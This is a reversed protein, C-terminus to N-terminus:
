DDKESCVSMVCNEKEKYWRITEDIGREFTYAPKFGTDESLESIDACLHMVQGNKYPIDGLGIEVQPGAANKIENIYAALPRGTGSGICYTKGHIGREGLLYFARAADKSYLYDWIQEGKTCSPKCGAQLYRILTMVMTNERDYPGYVSLVRGWIHEMGLQECRLRSMQGACLKAIGYGNEPFVPTGSSIMGEQRGYEAQSGAGIFKSCGLKHAAEVANLTYQINKLQVGTDNRSDGFTGAWAFHYFVDYKDKLLNPLMLLDELSCEVVKVSGDVPINCIRQSSQRCVAAIEMDKEMLERILATGIVGTPGTIIVKKM